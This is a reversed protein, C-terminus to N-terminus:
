FGGLGAAQSLICLCLELSSRQTDEAAQLVVRWQQEADEVMQQVELKEDPELDKQECLSHARTKLGAM